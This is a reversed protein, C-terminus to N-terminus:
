SCDVQDVIGVVVAHLPADPQKLIQRATNGERAALILDGVGADVSDVALFSTGRPTHTDVQVPQVVLVKQGDYCPHQITSVANGIVRALIV